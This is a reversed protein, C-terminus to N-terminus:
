RRQLSLTLPQEDDAAFLVGQEAALSSGCWAVAQYSGPALWAVFELTQPVTTRQPLSV